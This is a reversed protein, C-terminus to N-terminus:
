DGLAFDNLVWYDARRSPEDREFHLRQAPFNVAQWGPRAGEPARALATEFSCEIWIALDYVERLEQRFLFSGEALIVDIDEHVVREPRFVEAAEDAYQMVLDIRRRARFPILLERVLPELRFAHGYFHEAPEERSFRVVPLNRWGDACVVAIRLGAERLEAALRAAVWGKGAGDIGSLGVLLSAAADFDARRARILEAASPITLLPPTM